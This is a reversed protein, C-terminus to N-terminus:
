RNEEFTLIDKYLQEYESEEIDNLGSPNQKKQQLEYYRNLSETYELETLISM